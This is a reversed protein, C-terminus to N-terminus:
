AGSSRRLISRMDDIFSKLSPENKSARYLDMSLVIDTAFEIGGLTVIQGGQRIAEVLLKKYRDRECKRREKKPEAGIIATLSEPDAM